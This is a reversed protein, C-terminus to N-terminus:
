MKRLCQYVLDIHSKKHKETQGLTCDRWENLYNLKKTKKYEFLISGCLLSLNTNGLDVTLVEPHILKTLNSKNNKKAIKESIAFFNKNTIDCKTYHEILTSASLHNLIFLSSLLLKIRM